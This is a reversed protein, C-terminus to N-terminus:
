CSAFKRGAQTQCM